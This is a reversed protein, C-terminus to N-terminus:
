PLRAPPRLDGQRGDSPPTPPAVPPGEAVQSQRRVGPHFLTYLAVGLGAVAAPVIANGRNTYTPFLVVGSLVATWAWLILVSRRQGHGLRMLRHHLHEKDAQSLSARRMARRVIAFATDLMPVGLIFFPIFLPAFFFYTQGSFQDATRGGVTITTSAMLLGLLLAGADGMIIKSPHFNHPLFGVGLGCAIAAILPGINDPALLGAGSLRNAYLFFAGAAIAVVGAALGDLGDILNVANAMGVVWLVTVLFGLDPSLVIFDAFPIRFYFMTVGALGLACAALVQGAVKAPASVERLDDLFGVGFIIAAAVIVGIPETSGTFVARFGPLLAAVGMAVLFAVFMATGGVTPLPATHVRREDPYVVAGVRVAVRRVLPTMVYTVGAAVAFVIAYRLV